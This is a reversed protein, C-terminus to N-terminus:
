SASFSVTCRLGAPLSLAENPLSMRFGFTATAADFVQDIVTVTAPYAGGLPEEPQITVTDGIAIREFYSLPAFAEVRLVDLKAITAIQTQGDQYEGASLLRDVVVGNVPSRLIKQDLLAQAQEVELRAYSQNLRAEELDQRAIEAEQLAEDRLTESVARREALAAQRTAQAELFELRVERASITFPNDARAKALKLSIEEVRTDLRAIVQGKTVRDGREVEVTDIIGAVPTSLEIMDDAEILCRLPDLPRSQASASTSLLVVALLGATLEGLSVSFDSRM